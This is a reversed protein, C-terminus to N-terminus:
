VSIRMFWLTTENWDYLGGQMRLAQGKQKRLKSQLERERASLESMVRKADEPTLKPSKFQPRSRSQQEGPSSEPKKEPKEEPQEPSADTNAMAEAGADAVSADAPADVAAMAGADATARNDGTLLVSRM